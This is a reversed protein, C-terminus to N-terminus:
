TRWAGVHGRHRDVQVDGEEPRGEERGEPRHHVLAEIGVGRPLHHPRDADPGRDAPDQASPHGVERRSRQGQGRHQQADGEEVQQGQEEQPPEGARLAGDGALARARSGLHRRGHVQQGGQADQALAGVQPVEGPEHGQAREHLRQEVVGEVGLRGCM